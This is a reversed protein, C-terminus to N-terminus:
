GKLLAKGGNAFLAVFRVLDMSEEGHAEIRRQPGKGEGELVTGVSEQGKLPNIFYVRRDEFRTLVVQHLEHVEGDRVEGWPLEVLLNTQGDRLAQVLAEPSDTLPREQNTLARYLSQAQEISNPQVM